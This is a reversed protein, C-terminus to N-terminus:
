LNDITSYKTDMSYKGISGNHAYELMRKLPQSRNERQIAPVSITGYNTLHAASAHRQKLFGHSILHRMPRIHVEVVAYFLTMSADFLSVVEHM